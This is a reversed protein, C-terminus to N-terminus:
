IKELIQALISHKEMFVMKKEKKLYYALTLYGNLVDLVHQWPRTSNPSRIVAKKGQLWARM